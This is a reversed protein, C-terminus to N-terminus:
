CFQAYYAVLENEVIHLANLISPEEPPKVDDCRFGAARVETQFSYQINPSGDRPTKISKIPRTRLRTARVARLRLPRSLVVPLAAGSRM